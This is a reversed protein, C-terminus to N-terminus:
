VCRSTYLLCNTFPKGYAEFLRSFREIYHDILGPVCPVTITSEGHIRRDLKRRAAAEVLSTAGYPSGMMKGKSNAPVDRHSVM